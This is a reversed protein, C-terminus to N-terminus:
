ETKLNMKEEKRHCTKSAPGGFHKEERFNVNTSVYEHETNLDLLLRLVNRITHLINCVANMATM